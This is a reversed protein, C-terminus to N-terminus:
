ATEGTQRLRLRDGRQAGAAPISEVLGGEIMEALAAAFGMRAPSGHKGVAREVSRATDTGDEARGLVTAIRDRAAEVHTRGIEALRAGKAAEREADSFGQGRAVIMRRDHHIAQVKGLTAVSHRMVTGAADWDEDTVERRSHLLALGCAIKVRIFPAHSLLPDTVFPEDALHSLAGLERGAARRKKATAVDRLWALVHDPARLAVPDTPAAFAEWPLVGPWPTRLAEDDPLDALINAWLVRQPLGLGRDDLVWEVGEPQAHVTICARYGHAPLAKARDRDATSQGVREGVIVQRLYSLLTTGHRESGKAKVESIESSAFLARRRRWDLFKDAGTGRWVAFEGVLGEGTGLSLADAGPHDFEAEAAQSLDDTEAWAGFLDRACQATEGKGIGPAGITMVLLNLSGGGDGAREPTRVTHPTAAVVRALVEALVGWPGLGRSWAADRIHRLTDTADWFGLEAGDDSTLAPPAYTDPRESCAPPNIEVRRIGAIVMRAFEARAEDEDSRDAVTAAFPAVASALTRRVGPHGNGGLNLLRLVERATADHAGGHTRQTADHLDRGAAAVHSCAEGMPDVCARWFEDTSHDTRTRTREPAVQEGPAVYGLWVLVDRPAEVLDDPGPIAAERQVTTGIRWRYPQGAVVSPPVVAYRHARRIVDVGLVPTGWTSGSHQWGTPVRYLRIGSDPDGPFRRGTTWTDPLDEVGVARLGARWEANHYADVDIGIVDDPLRIGINHGDPVPIGLDRGERGTTGGPPAGKAGEPLPLLGAWGADLYDVGIM